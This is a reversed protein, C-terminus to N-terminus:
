CCKPSRTLRPLIFSASNQCLSFWESNRQEAEFALGAIIHQGETVRSGTRRKTVSPPMGARLQRTKDEQMANGDKCQAEHDERRDRRGRDWRRVEIRDVGRKGRKLEARRGVGCSGRDVVVGADNRVRM